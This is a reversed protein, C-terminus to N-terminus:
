QVSPKFQVAARIREFNDGLWKIRLDYVGHSSFFLHDWEDAERKITRMTFDSFYSMDTENQIAKHVMEQCESEDRECLEQLKLLAKAQEHAGILSYGEIGIQILSRWSGLCNWLFQAWGGNSINYEIADFASVMKIEIPAHGYCDFNPDWWLPGEPYYKELWSIILSQADEGNM